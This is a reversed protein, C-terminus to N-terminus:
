TGPTRSSVVQDLYRGSLKLYDDAAFFDVEFIIVVVRELGVCTITWIGRRFWLWLARSRLLHVGEIVRPCDGRFRGM